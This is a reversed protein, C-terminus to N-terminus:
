AMPARRLRATAPCTVIILVPPLRTSRGSVCESFTVPRAVQKDCRGCMVLSAVDELHSLRPSDPDIRTERHMRSVLAAPLLRLSDTSGQHYQLNHALAALGRQVSKCDECYFVTEGSSLIMAAEKWKLFGVPEPPGPPSVSITGHTDQPVPPIQNVSRCKDLLSKTLDPFSMFVFVAAFQKPVAFEVVGADTTCRGCQGPLRRHTSVSM